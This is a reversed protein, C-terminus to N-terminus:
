ERGTYAAATGSVSGVLFDVHGDESDKLWIYSLLDTAVKALSKM